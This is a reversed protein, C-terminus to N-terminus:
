PPCVAQLLPKMVEHLGQGQALGASIFLALNWLSQAQTTRRWFPLSGDLEVVKKVTSHPM